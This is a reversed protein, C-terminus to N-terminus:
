VWEDPESDRGMGQELEDMMDEYDQWVMARSARWESKEGFKLEIGQRWRQTRKEAEGREEHAWLPPRSWKFIIKHFLGGCTETPIEVMRLEKDDGKGESLVRISGHLLGRLQKLSTMGAIWGNREYEHSLDLPHYGAPVNQYFYLTEGRLQFETALDLRFEVLRDCTPLLDFAKRAMQTSTYHMGYGELAMSTIERRRAPPLSSLFAYLASTSTFVLTNHKYFLALAEKYIQRCVLLLRLSSRHRAAFPSQHMYEWRTVNTLACTFIKQRLETPLSLVHPPPM